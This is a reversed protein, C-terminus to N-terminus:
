QLVKTAVYSFTSNYNGSIEQEYEYGVITYLKKQKLIPFLVQVPIGVTFAKSSDEKWSKTPNAGTNPDIDSPFIPSYDVLSFSSYKFNIGIRFDVGKYIKDTYFGGIQFNLKKPSEFNTDVQSSNFGVKPNISIGFHAKAIEQTEEINQANISLYFISCFIIALTKSKSM